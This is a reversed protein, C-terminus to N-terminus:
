KCMLFFVPPSPPRLFFLSLSCVFICNELSTVAHVARPPADEQPKASQSRTKKWSTRSSTNPSMTATGPKEVEAGVASQSGDIKSAATNNLVSSTGLSVPFTPIGGRQLVSIETTKMALGGNRMTAYQHWVVPDVSVSPAAIEKPFMEPVRKGDTGLLAVTSELIALKRGRRASSSNAGHTLLPGELQRQRHFRAWMHQM